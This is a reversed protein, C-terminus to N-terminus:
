PSCTWKTKENFIKTEAIMIIVCILASPMNRFRELEKTAGQESIESSDIFSLLWHCSYSLEINQVGVSDPLAREKLARTM